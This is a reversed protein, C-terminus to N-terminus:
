AAKIGEIEKQLQKVKAQLLVVARDYMFNEVEGEPGYDVLEKLGRQDAEDAAFGYFRRADEGGKMRYTFGDMEMFESVASEPVDELGEKYKLASTARQLFGNSDVYVNASVGATNSYVPPAYIVSDDRIQLLTTNSSNKVDVSFTSSTAGIGKVFLRRNSLPTAGFSAQGSGDMYFLASNGASLFLRDNVNDYAVRGQTGSDADGFYINAVQTSPVAISIGNDAAGGTKFVALAGTSPASYGSLNTGVVLSSFVKITNPLIWAGSASNASADYQVEYHGGAIIEGGILAQDNEKRISKAGVGDVNLTATSTNTFGAVFSFRQGDAYASISQNSTLTQTNASGGTTLSGNNDSRWNDILSTIGLNDRADSATSAGTGGAVIPRDTNLDDVLDDITQNYKSSEITTNAVATTGAPKSYVGSGNRPM